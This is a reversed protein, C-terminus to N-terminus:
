STRGSRLENSGTVIQTLKHEEQSNPLVFDQEPEIRIANKSEERHSMSVPRGGRYPASKQKIKIISKKTQNPRVQRSSEGFSGARQVSGLEGESESSSMDLNSELNIVGSTELLNREHEDDDDFMLDIDANALSGRFNM